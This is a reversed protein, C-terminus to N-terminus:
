DKQSLGHLDGTGSRWAPIGDLLQHDKNETIVPAYNETVDVGPMQSYGCAVLRAHFVGNRKIIMVWKIKVCRRGIPMKHHKIKKWVNRNAMKNFEKAIADRWKDKQKTEQHNWAEQYPKPELLQDYDEPDVEL